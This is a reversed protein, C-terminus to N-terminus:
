ALARYVISNMKEGPRKLRNLRFNTEATIAKPLFFIKLSHFGVACRGRAGVDGEETEDSLAGLTIQHANKRACNKKKKIVNQKRECKCEDATRTTRGNLRLSLRSRRQHAGYRHANKM